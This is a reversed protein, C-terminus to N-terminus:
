IIGSSYIFNIEIYPHSILRNQRNIAINEKDIISITWNKSSAIITLPLLRTIDNYDAGVTIVKPHKSVNLSLKISKLVNKM